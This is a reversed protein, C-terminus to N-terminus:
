LGGWDASTGQQSHNVFVGESLRSLVSPGGLRARDQEILVPKPAKLDIYCADRVRATAATTLLLVSALALCLGRSRGMGAGRRKDQGSM